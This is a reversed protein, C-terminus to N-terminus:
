DSLFCFYYNNVRKLFLFFYVVFTVMKIESMKLSDDLLLMENDCSINYCFSHTPVLIFIFFTFLAFSYYLLCFFIFFSSLSQSARPVRKTVLRQYVRTLPTM